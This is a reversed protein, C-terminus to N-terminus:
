KVSFAYVCAEHWRCDAVCKRQAEHLPNKQSMNEGRWVVRNLM